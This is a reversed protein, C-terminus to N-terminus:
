ADIVTRALALAGAVFARVAPLLALPQPRPFRGTLRRFALPSAWGLRNPAGRGRALPAQDAPTLVGREAILARPYSLPARLASDEPPRPGELAAM